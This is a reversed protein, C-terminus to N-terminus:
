IKKVAVPSATSASTTINDNLTDRLQQAQQQEYAYKTCEYIQAGGRVSTVDCVEGVVCDTFQNVFLRRWADMMQDQQEDIDSSRYCSILHVGSASKLTYHEGYQVGVDEACLAMIEDLQGWTTNIINAVYFALSRRITFDNNYAYYNFVVDM